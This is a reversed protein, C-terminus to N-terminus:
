NPCRRFECRLLSRDEIEEEGALYQTLSLPSLGGNEENMIDKRPICKIIEDIHINNDIFTKLINHSDYGGSYFFIIYDYQQRLEKVRKDYFYNVDEVPEKTWDYLSFVKKNFDWHIKSFDYKQGNLHKWKPTHKENMLQIFALNM